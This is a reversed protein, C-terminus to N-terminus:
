RLTLTQAVGDAGVVFAAAEWDPPGFRAPANNSFAYPENPIGMM